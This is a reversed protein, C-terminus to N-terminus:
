GARALAMRNLTVIEPAPLMLATTTAGSRLFPYRM